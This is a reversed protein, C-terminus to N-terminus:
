PNMATAQQQVAVYLMRLQHLTNELMAAEEVSLNGKTKEDLVELTDILHKGYELQVVIKGDEPESLQGLAAMAQTALSMILTTLSAPPLQNDGVDATTAEPEAHEREHQAQEKEAEVQSKWDEDIIIKKEQDDSM